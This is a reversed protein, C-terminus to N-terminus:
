ASSQDLRSAFLRTVHGFHLLLTVGRVTIYAIMSWWLGTNGALQSWWVACGLFVALSVCAANRLAVGCAAGIFIGDLQWPVVGLLVYVAALPLHALALDLVRASPALGALLWHGGLLVCLALVLAFGLAVASTRAVVRRFLRWDNAGIARGVHSEAVFAVGDLFFASFSVLQQLLHNGALTQEGLQASSRSFWSFGALLALTRLFINLNVGAVGRWADRDWFWGWGTRALTSIEPRALRALVLVSVLAGLWEAAVTGAAIGAVGKWSGQLGWVFWLSAVINVGNTLLQVVLLPRTLGLAILAGSSVSQVLVAPAGWIRTLIYVKAVPAVNGTPDLAGLFAQTLGHRGFLLALSLVLALGLARVVIRWMENGRRAGLAQAALGTTSMRLFGLAWFISNFVLSGLAVAGLDVDRGVRGIIATDAMGLLPVAANALIAPWAQRLVTRYTPEDM